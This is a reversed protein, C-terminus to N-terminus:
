LKMKKVNAAVNQKINAVLIKKVVKEANAVEKKVNAAENKKFMKWMMKKQVKAVELGFETQLNM